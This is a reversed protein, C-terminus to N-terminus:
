ATHSFLQWSTNHRHCLMKPSSVGGGVQHLVHHRGHVVPRLQLRQAGHGVQLGPVARTEEGGVDEAGHAQWRRERPVVRSVRVQSDLRVARQSAKDQMTRAYDAGCRQHILPLVPPDGQIAELTHNQGKAWDSETTAEFAPLVVVKRKNVAKSFRPYKRADSVGKSVMFDLDALLVSQGHVHSRTLTCQPPVAMCSLKCRADAPDTTSRADLNIAACGGPACRAASVVLVALPTLCLVFPPFLLLAYKLRHWSSRGTACRTQLTCSRRRRTPAHSRTSCWTWRVSGQLVTMISPHIRTPQRKLLTGGAALVPESAGQM